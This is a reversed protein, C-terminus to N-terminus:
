EEERVPGAPGYHKRREIVECTFKEWYLPLERKDKKWSFGKKEYDEPTTAYFRVHCVEVATTCHALSVQVITKKSPKKIQNPFKHTNTFPKRIANFGFAKTESCTVHLIAFIMSITAIFQLNSILHDKM